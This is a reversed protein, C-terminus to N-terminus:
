YLAMFGNIKIKMKRSKFLFYFQVSSLNFSIYGIRVSKSYNIFYFHSKRNAQMRANTMTIEFAELHKQFHFIEQEYTV